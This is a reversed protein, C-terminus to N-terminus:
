QSLTREHIPPMLHLTLPTCSTFGCGAGLGQSGSVGLCPRPALCVHWPGDLAELHQPKGVVDVCTRSMGPLPVLDWAGSPRVRFPRWRCLSGLTSALVPQNFSPPPPPPPHPHGGGALAQQGRHSGQRAHAGIAGKGLRWMCCVQAPMLAIGCRCGTGGGCTSM